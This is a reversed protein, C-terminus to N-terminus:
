GKVAGIIKKLANKYVLVDGKSQDWLLLTFMGVQKITVNLITEGNVFHVEVPTKAKCAAKLYADHEAAFPSKLKPQSSSMTVM